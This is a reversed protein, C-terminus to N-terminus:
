ANLGKLPPLPSGEMKWFGTLIPSFALKDLRGEVSFEITDEEGAELKAVFDPDVLVSRGLVCVDTYKLAELAKDPSNINGALLMPVRGAIHKKVTLAIPENNGGKAPMTDIENLSPSVSIYDAGGEIVRDILILADDVTYGVNDGHVEEPSIRYGVIFEKGGKEMAVEKVKKLVALPFAMRKEFNGGWDDERINSYASFFQQLLYHNAGHIEVGDFGAEIARRTAEGFDEIIQLIEERTLEQPVYDLFPFKIASPAFVKGMSQYTGVSERGAHHLQVVAKNGKEKIISALKKLGELNDDSYITLQNPMGHGNLSVTMAGTNILNGTNNRLKWYDYDNQGVMNNDDSGFVLMPAMSFRNTLVVGNGLTVNEFLAKYKEKM